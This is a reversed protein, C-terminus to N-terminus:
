LGGRLSLHPPENSGGGLPEATTGARAIVVLLTHERTKMETRIASYTKWTPRPRQSPKFKSRLASCLHAARSSFAPRLGRGVVSRPMFGSRCRALVLSEKKHRRLRM